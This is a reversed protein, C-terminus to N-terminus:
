KKVAEIYNILAQIGSGNTGIIKDCRQDNEECVFNIINNATTQSCDYELKNGSAIQVRCSTPNGNPDTCEMGMLGVSWTCITIKPGAACGSFFLLSLVLYKM